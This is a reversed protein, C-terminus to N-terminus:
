LVMVEELGSLKVSGGKTVLYVDEVRVGGRGKFYLGPEITVVMGARVRHRSGQALTPIEHISLGVGHGLGHIFFKAMGAEKIISRASLDVSRALVGPRLAKEGREKANMVLQIAEEAWPSPRGLVVTRSLDSCYGEVRVGFDVIVPEGSRPLGEGAIRHPQSSGPSCSVITDFALGSAGAKRAEVEMVGAVEREHAGNALAEVGKRIGREAAEVARRILEVEVEDKVARLEEVLGTVDSLRAGGVMKELELYARHSLHGAEVGLVGEKVLRGVVEGLGRSLAEVEVFGEARLEAEELDLRSVLLTAEGNSSVLLYCTRPPNGTAPFGTLYEVNEPTSALYYSLGRDELKALLRKLRKARVGRPV